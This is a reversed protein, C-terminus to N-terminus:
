YFRSNKRKKFCLDKKLALIESNILDIFNELIDLSEETTLVKNNFLESTLFLATNFSRKRLNIVDELDKNM